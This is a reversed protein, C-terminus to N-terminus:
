SSKTISLDLHMEMQRPGHPDPPQPYRKMDLPNGTFHEYIKSMIEVLSHSYYLEVEAPHLVFELHIIGKGTFKDLLENISKNMEEVVVLSYDSNCITEFALKMQRTLENRFKGWDSKIYPKLYELVTELPSKIGGKTGGKNLPTPPISQAPGILRWKGFTMKEVYDATEINARQKDCLNLLSSYGRKTWEHGKEFPYLNYKPILIQKHLITEGM